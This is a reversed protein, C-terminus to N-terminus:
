VEATYDIATIVGDEVTFVYTGDGEIELSMNDYVPAYGGLADAATFVPKANWPAGSPPTGAVMDCAEAGAGFNQSVLRNRVGVTYPAGTLLNLGAIDAKEQTTPVPGATFYIIKTM